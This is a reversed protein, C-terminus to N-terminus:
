EPKSGGGKVGLAEKYKPELVEMPKDIGASLLTSAPSEKGKSSVIQDTVV